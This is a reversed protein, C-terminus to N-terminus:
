ANVAEMYRYLQAKDIYNLEALTFWYAAIETKGTLFELIEDIEGKIQLRVIRKQPKKLKKEAAVLDRYATLIVSAALARDPKMM